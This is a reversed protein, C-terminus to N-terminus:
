MVADTRRLTSQRAITRILTIRVCRELTVTGMSESRHSVTSHRVECAHSEPNMRVRAHRISVHSVIDEFRM